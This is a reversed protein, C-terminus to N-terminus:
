QLRGSLIHSRLLVVIKRDSLDLYALFWILHIFAVPPSQNSQKNVYDRRMSVYKNAANPRFTFTDCIAKNCM